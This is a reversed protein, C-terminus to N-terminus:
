SPTLLFAHNQGTTNSYGQVAIQGNNNIGVANSLTFGSGAPVLDNLNRFHGPTGVIAGGPGQGAIVGLDNIADPFLNLGLDVM